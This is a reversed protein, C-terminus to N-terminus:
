GRWMTIVLEDDPDVVVTLRTGAVEVAMRVNGRQDEGLVLNWPQSWRM